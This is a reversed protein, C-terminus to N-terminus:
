RKLIFMDMKRWIRVLGDEMASLVLVFQEDSGVEQVGSKIVM